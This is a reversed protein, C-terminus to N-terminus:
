GEGLLIEIESDSIMDIDIQEIPIEDFTYLDRKQHAKCRLEM